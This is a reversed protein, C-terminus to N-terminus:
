CSMNSMLVKTRKDLNIQSLLIHTKSGYIMYGSLDWYLKSWFQYSVSNSSKPTFNILLYFAPSFQLHPIKYQAKYLVGFTLLMILDLLNPNAPFTAHIPTILFAYLTKNLFGATCLGSSHHLCLHYPLKLILRLSIM